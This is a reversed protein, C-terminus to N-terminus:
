PAAREPHGREFAKQVDSQNLYLVQVVSIAMVAYNPSDGRYYLVLEAAMVCGVWLMTAVWAWRQLCVLGIAAILGALAVILASTDAEANALKKVIPDELGTLVGSAHAIANVAQVAAIVYVGFPRSQSSEVRKEAEASAPSPTAADLRM